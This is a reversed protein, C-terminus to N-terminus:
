ERKALAAAANPTRALERHVEHPNRHHRLQNLLPNAQEPTSIGEAAFLSPLRRQWYLHQREIKGKAQPTRAYRLSVGYISHLAWNPSPKPAKRSSSATATSM